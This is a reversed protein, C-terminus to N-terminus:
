FNSVIVPVLFIEWGQEKEPVLIKKQARLFEPSIKLFVDTDVKIVGQLLNFINYLYNSRRRAVNSMGAGM